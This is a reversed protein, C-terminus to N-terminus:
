NSLSSSTESSSTDTISVPEILSDVVSIYRDDSYDSNSQTQSSLSIIGNDVDSVDDLNFSRISGATVGDNGNPWM